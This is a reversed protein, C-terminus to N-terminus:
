VGLAKTDNCYKKLSKILFKGDIIEYNNNNFVNAIDSELLEKDLKDLPRRQWLNTRVPCLEYRM